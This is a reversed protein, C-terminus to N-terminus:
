NRRDCRSAYYYSGCIMGFICTQLSSGPLAQSMESWLESKYTRFYRKLILILLYKQDFIKWFNPM